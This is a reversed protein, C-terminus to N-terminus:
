RRFRSIIEDSNSESVIYLKLLINNKILLVRQRSKKVPSHSNLM